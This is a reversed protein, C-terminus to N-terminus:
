FILKKNFQQGNKAVIQVMLVQNAYPLDEFIATDSNVNLKQTLLRGRLDYIRITQMDVKGSAVHVDQKNKFVLISNQGADADNVGLAETTYRLVFRDNFTGVVSTFSYDSEKLDHIVGLYLDELYVQQDLFLGDYNSLSVHYLGAADTRYGLPVQDNADFPMARGQIALKDTENVSYLSVPNGAEVIDSDYFQDKGNTANDMYGVLTQKFAGTDNKLDLWVRNKGSASQRFFMSNSGALRMSNNMVANMTGNPRSANANAFFGQAAAINGDPTNTNGTGGGPATGVGGNLNYVAYDSGVYQNGSIPTNHTWFYLTGGLVTSNALIFADADLASPYPNGILSLASNTAKVTPINYVGNNPVGNNANGSFIATFVTGATWAPYPAVVVGPQPARILYGKGEVMLTNSPVSQYQNLTTNYQFYKDSMTAPSVGVLTQPSVPSSWYTYDYQNMPTTSRKYIVAGANAATDSIQLLSANNEFTLTGGAIVTLGNQLTMTYNSPITVNAGANVRCSCGSVNANQNYNGAFVIGDNITPAGGTWATGNWTRTNVTFVASAVGPCPNGGATGTVTVTVNANSRVYITSLSSTGNYNTIGAADTFLTGAISSSWVTNTATGSVTLMTPVNPCLSGSAPSIAVTPTATITFTTARRCTPNTSCAAYYTYVGPTNTDPLAPDSGVPNWSAGTGVATGGSAATYWEIQGNQYLMIDGGSPPTVTWNFTGPNTVGFTTSFLLYTVGPTLNVTMRPRLAGGSDDDGRLFNASCVGATFPSAAIYGMGDQNPSLADMFFTYSGAVTVRFEIAEYQRMESSFNCVASNTSSFQRVASPSSATWAGSIQNPTSPISFGNCATSSTLFTVPTAGQCVSAGTTVPPPAYVSFPTASYGTDTGNSVSILGSTAGAPLTVVITTTNHSTVTAATGNFRVIPAPDASAPFNTGTITVTTGPSCANNNPTFSTISPVRVCTLMAQWGSSVISVDSNWVFTLYGSTSYRVGPSNTGHFSGAPCTTTNFGAAAGSSIMPSSSNPGDFIRLGDYNAETSFSTFDAKLQYGASAQFTYVRSVSNNVGNHEYNGYNGAVGGSDTFLISGNGVANCVPSPHVYTANLMSVTTPPIIADTTFTAQNWVSYQMGCNSRIWVYYTTNAALGSLNIVTAASPLSGTAIDDYNPPTSSTSLYYEYGGGPAGMSPVAFNVEASNTTKTITGIAPPFCTEEELLIEDLYIKGMNDPSHARFGVYYADTPLAGLTFNLVGRIPSSKISNGNANTYDVLMKGHAANTMGYANPINGISVEMENYTGPTDHSGGYLYSLRYVTSGTSLDVGNTFFYTNAAATGPPDVYELHEDTFGEAITAPTGYSTVWNVPGGNLLVSSCPVIAPPTYPFPWGSDFFQYYPLPEPTCSTTFSVSTWASYSGGCDTRVYLTYTTGPSLGAFSAGTGAPTGSSALGAAGSGAAGSTRLEWEYGAPSGSPATWTASASNHNANSIALASPASCSIPRFWIRKASSAVIRASSLFVQNANNNTYNLPNPWVAGNAVSMAIVQASSGNPGRLGMQGPAPTSSIGGFTNSFAGFEMRISNPEGVYTSEYLHLQFILNTSSDYALNLGNSRRGRWEIKLIRNPSAGEVSYTLTQGIATGPAFDIDRAHVAIAGDYAPSGDLPTYLNAYSNYAPTNDADFFVFGNTSLYVHSYSVGNFQFSMAPSLAGINIDFVQDDVQVGSAILTTPTVLASLTTSGAEQAVGYASVQGRASGVVLLLFLFKLRGFSNGLSLLKKMM